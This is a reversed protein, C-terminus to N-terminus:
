LWVIALGVMAVPETAKAASLTVDVWGAERSRKESVRENGFRPGGVGIERYDRSNALVGRMPKRGNFRLSALCSFLM